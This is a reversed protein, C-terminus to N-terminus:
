RDCEGVCLVYFSAASAAWRDDRSKRVVAGACYRVKPMEYLMSDDDVGDDGQEDEGPKIWSKM